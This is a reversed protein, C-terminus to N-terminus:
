GDEFRIINESSRDMVIDTVAAAIELGPWWGDITILLTDATILVTDATIM